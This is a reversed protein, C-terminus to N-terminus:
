RYWRYLGWRKQPEYCPNEVENRKQPNVMAIAETAISALAKMDPHVMNIPTDQITGM